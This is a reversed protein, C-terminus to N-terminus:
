LRQSLHMWHLGKKITATTTTVAEMLHTMVKDNYLNRRLKAM